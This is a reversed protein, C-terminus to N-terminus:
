RTVRVGTDSESEKKRLLSIIAQAANTSAGASGLSARVSTLQEVLVNSQTHKFFPLVARTIKAPTCDFQILEPVIRRNALINVLSLHAVRIFLKFLLFTIMPMRYVVVFPRLM